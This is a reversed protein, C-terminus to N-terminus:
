RAPSRAISMFLFQEAHELAVIPQAELMALDSESVPEGCWLSVVKAVGAGASEYKDTRASL